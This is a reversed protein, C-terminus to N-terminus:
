WRRRGGGNGGGNSAGEGGSSASGSQSKSSNSNNNNNNSHGNGNNGNNGAFPSGRWREVMFAVKQGYKSGRLSVMHRKILAACTERHAPGANTLIYQVIYNGYQDAAIDILPIRPRDQVGDCVIHIYQGMVEDQTMSITTGNVTITASTTTSSSSSTTTGAAVSALSSSTLSSSSVLAAMRLTKEVVKSAYQDLSLNVADELIKQTVTARDAPAGHELIHQVVWNGWQGKAITTVSQLIENLVPRKDHEACNEFINQVVLSGTEDVAVSAWRGGVASNVYTMVAPPADTWRIEFVKQWVHCAYRHVITDCIRRFMETVIRAKCDEEVNDLAKQVVHCGFPDCALTLINGRMAQALADIQQPTGFEFCRQILFNGFRNSMLPYAQGLIADIIMIKQEPPSTKLKQQLHISAQQDTAQLIRDVCIQYDLHAPKESHRRYSNRYPPLSQQQQQQQQVQHQHQHTQNIFNPDFGNSLGLVSGNHYQSQTGLDYGFGTTMEDGWSQSHTLSTSTNWPYSGQQELAPSDFARSASSFSGSSQRHNLAPFGGPQSGYGHQVGAMGRAGSPAFGMSTSSALADSHVSGFESVSPSEVLGNIDMFGQYQPYFPQINQLNLKLSSHQQQSQQPQHLSHVSNSRSSPAALPHVSNNSLHGYGLSAEYMEDMGTGNVISTSRSEDMLNPTTSLMEGGSPMTGMGTMDSYKSLGKNANLSMSSDYASSLSVSTSLRQLKLLEEIEKDKQRLKRRDDEAELRMKAIQEKLQAIESTQRLCTQQLSNIDTHANDATAAPKAIPDQPSPLPRTPSPSSLRSSMFGKGQAQLGKIVSAPAPLNKSMRAHKRLLFRRAARQLVRAAYEKEVGLIGGEPQKVSLATQSESAVPRVFEDKFFFGNGLVPPFEEVKPSNSLPTHNDDYRDWRSPSRSSFSLSSPGLVGLLQTDGHLAPIFEEAGLAKDFSFRSLGSSANPLRSSRQNQQSSPKQSSHRSASNSELAPAPPLPSHASGPKSLFPAGFASHKVFSIDDLGADNEQNNQHQQSSPKSLNLLLSGLSSASALREKYGNGLM